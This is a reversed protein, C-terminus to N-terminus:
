QTSLGWGEFRVYTYDPARTRGDSPRWGPSSTIFNDKRDDSYWSHLAVLGAHSAYSPPYVYGVLRSFRYDPALRQGRAGHSRHDATTWNDGRSPSYWRYLPITGDPQPADPSFLRAWHAVFEYDPARREGTQGQWALQTHATNDGRDRSWWGNLVVTAVCRSDACGGSVCESHALCAAGNARRTSLVCEGAICYNPHPCDSNRECRETSDVRPEKPRDAAPSSEDATTTSKAASPETKTRLTPEPALELTDAPETGVGAGVPTVLARPRTNDPEGVESALETISPKSQEGRGVEWTLYAVSAVAGALVSGLAFGLKGRGGRRSASRGPYSPRGHQGPLPPKATPRPTGLIVERVARAAGVEDASDVTKYSRRSFPTGPTYPEVRLQRLKDLQDARAWESRCYKSSEYAPSLLALMLSCSRIAEIIQEDVPGGEEHDYHQVITTHGLDRLKWDLWKAWELQADAYSIFIPGNGNSATEAM